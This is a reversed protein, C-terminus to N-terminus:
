KCPKYGGLGSKNPKGNYQITCARIGTIKYAGFTRSKRRLILLCKSRGCSRFNFRHKYNQGVPKTEYRRQATDPDTKEIPSYDYVGANNILIDISGLKEKAALYLAKANETRSLDTSLYNEDECKSRGCGFVRCGSAKLEQVIALGIGKTSGSILVNKM